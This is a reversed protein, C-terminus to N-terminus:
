DVPESRYLSKNGFLYAINNTSDWFLRAGEAMDTKETVDNIKALDYINVRDRTDTEAAKITQGAIFILYDSNLWRCDTIKESLRIVFQKDGARAAPQDIKDDLFFIWIESDSAYVIKKGDPSLELESTLSDFIKKFENSGPVLAYLETGKKVFYYGGLVWLDYKLASETEMKAGTIKEPKGAASKKYIYGDQALDYETGDSIKLALPETSTSNESENGTIKTITAPSKNTAIAYNITKGDATVPLKLTKSDNSWEWGSLVADKASFDGQDALKATVGEKLDYLRLNWGDATQGRLALKTRDPSVLIGDINQEASSFGLKAPLLLINRAETVEKEKVELKKSWPQYGSKKIEVDYKRPLLNEVLSSGFFFDTQENLNGNIYIDAQKPV